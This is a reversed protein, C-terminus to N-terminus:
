TPPHSPPFTPPATEMAGRLAVSFHFTGEGKIGRGRRPPSPFFRLGGSERRGSEWERVGESPTFFNIKQNLCLKTALIRAVPWVKSPQHPSSTTMYASM